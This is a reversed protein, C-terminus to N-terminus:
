RGREARMVALSEITFDFRLVEARDDPAGPDSQSVNLERVSMPQQDREVAVLCTELGVVDGEASLRVSLSTGAARAVTDARLELSSVKVNAGEALREVLAGLMASAASATPAAITHASLRALQTRRATVSDRLAALQQRAARVFAVRERLTDRSTSRHARWERLAPAGRSAYLLVSIATVGTLLTM